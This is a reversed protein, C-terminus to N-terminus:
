CVYKISSALNLVGLVVDLSTKFRELSAQLMNLEKERFSLTLRGNVTVVMKGSAFILATTKPDRIRM